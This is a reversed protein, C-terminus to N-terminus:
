SFRASKIWQMNASEPVPFLSGIKHYVQRQVKFTATFSGYKVFKVTNGFISNFINLNKLPELLILKFHSQGSVWYQCISRALPVVCVLNKQTFSWLAVIRLMTTKMTISHQKTPISEWDQDFRGYSNLKVDHRTRWSNSCSVKSWFHTIRQSTKAAISIPAWGHFACIWTPNYNFWRSHIEPLYEKIFFWKWTYPYYYSIRNHM